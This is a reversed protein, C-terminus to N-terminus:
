VRPHARRREARARWVGLTAAPGIPGLGGLSDDVLVPVGELRDPVFERGRTVVLRLDRLVALDERPDGAVAILDAEFGEALVGTVGACGIAAAARSTAALIVEARPLGAWELAELGGVYGRQPVAPIGADHGVVIRVGHEWLRRVPPAYSDDRRLMRPMDATMTCEVYVGTRAMEDALAADFESRGRDTIFSAHAVLDVGARVAREIGQTGHAHAATWKGLRHAEAFLVQLEDQSFQAFWPASGGTMFGGTAMVKITDVGMKHHRRVEHRIQDISDVEAGAHHSHGGITTIQPGSAIIRPGRVDGNDIADRVAVDVYHRAGLSQASTVGVSLLERASRVANLTLRAVEHPGYDPYEVATGSTPLHDHTEILGPMLTSGPLDLRVIREPDAVALDARSSPHALHAEAEAATGAFLIRKRGLLVAGGRGARRADEAPGAGEGDPGVAPVDGIVELTGPAEGRRGTILRDATVLVTSRGDLREGGDTPPTIWGTTEGPAPIPHDTM